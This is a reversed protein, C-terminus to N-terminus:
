ESVTNSSPKTEQLSIVTEFAGVLAKVKSRRAEVLKNATEEIIINFLGKGDQKEVVDQHRLVVTGEGPENDNTDGDVERRTFTIHGETTSNENEGLVSGQRFELQRPCDNDSQIDVVTGRRFSLKVPQCHNDDTFVTGYKIPIGGNEIESIDAEEMNVTKDENFASDSDYKAKTVNYESEDLAPPSMEAACNENKDSELVVNETELKIVYLTKEELIDGNSEVHEDFLQETKANGVENHNKRPLVVKLNRNKKASLSIAGSLSARRSLSARHSPSVVELAVKSTATTKGTKMDSTGSQRRVRLVEFPAAPLPKRAQSKPKLSTSPQKRFSEENAKSPVKKSSVQVRRSPLTGNHRMVKGADSLDSKLEPSSKLKRMPKKKNERSIKGDSSNMPVELNIIDSTDFSYSRSSPSPKAKLNVVSAKQKILLLKNEIPKDGGPSETSTRLKTVESMRPIRTESTPSSKSVVASAKKRQPSDSIEFLNQKELSKKIIRKPFPLRAKEESEDHKMGPKCFDHYTGISARRYLSIPRERSNAPGALSNRRLNGRNIRTVDPTMSSSFSEVAM